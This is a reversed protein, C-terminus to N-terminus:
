AQSGISVGVFSDLRTLPVFANDDNKTDEAFDDFHCPHILQGNISDIYMDDDLVVNRWDLGEAEFEIMNREAMEQLEWRDSWIFKKVRNSYQYRSPINVGSVIENFQVSPKSSPPAVSTDENKLKAEFPVVTGLISRGSSRPRASPAKSSQNEQSQHFLGLRNLLRTRTCKESLQAKNTIIMSRSSAGTLKKESPKRM